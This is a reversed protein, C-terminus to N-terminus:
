EEYMSEMLAYVRLIIAAAQGRNATQNPRFCGDNFGAIIGLNAMANVPNKFVNAITNEDMFGVPAYLESALEPTVKSPDILFRFAFTAMEARTISKNPKFTGDGYGATIGNEAAWLIAKYYPSASNVDPFSLSGAQEPEGCLRWLFTVFQGRTVDANPRFTNDPYGAIIGLGAATEIYDRYGSNSIDTFTCEHWGCVTCVHNEYQHGPSSITRKEVFKCIVCQRIDVGDDWCTPETNVYWEGFTHHAPVFNDDYYAGCECTHRTYGDDFCDAIATCTDYTYDHDHGGEGMFHVTTVDFDVHEKFGIDIWQDYTGYYYLDTLYGFDVGSSIVSAPIHLEKMPQDIYHNRLAGGAIGVIGEPIVVKEETAGCYILWDGFYLPGNEITSYDLLFPTNAFVFSGVYSFSGGYSVSTLSSCNFFASEGLSILKSPLTVESLSHCNSFADGGIETVTEPIEVSKLGGDFFAFNPIKEIGTCFTATELAGCNSFAHEGIFEVGGPVTIGTLNNCCIFAYSGIHKLSDPLTVSVIDSYRFARDDIYELGEPLELSAIKGTNEFASVGIKKLSKPLVVETLQQFYVFAEDSISTIGDGIVLKKVAGKAWGANVTDAMEGTGSLTLTGESDLVWTINDGLTGSTTDAAFASFPMLALLMCLVLAFSLLRKKM